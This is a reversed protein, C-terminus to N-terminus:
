AERLRLQRATVGFTARLTRAFHAADAFGAAHAAATAMAGENLCQSARWLRRWLVFRRFNMGVRQGFVHRLREPSLHMRRGLMAVSIAGQVLLEDIAERVQEEWPDAAEAPHLDSRGLWGRWFGDPAALGEGSAAARRLAEGIDVPLGATPRRRPEIFVLLSDRSPPLRHAQLPEIFLPGGDGLVAQAAFHRHLSADGVAGRWLAWDLGITLQGDWAPGAADHVDTSTRRM